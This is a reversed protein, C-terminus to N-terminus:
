GPSAFQALTEAETWRPHDGGFTYGPPKHDIFIERVLQFDRPEDFAGVCMMYQGTPKLFYFLASGCRSCFGREAWDSSEYRGLNETGQFEVAGAEAAFVPGSAWRRCMGCHCAHHHTEVDRAVFRVSGCLCQGTRATM